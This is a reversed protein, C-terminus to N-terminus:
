FDPVGKMPFYMGPEPEVHRLESAATEWEHRVMVVSRDRTVPQRPRGSGHARLIRGAGVALVDPVHLSGGKVGSERFTKVSSPDEM